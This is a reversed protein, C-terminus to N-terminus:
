ESKQLHNSLRLFGWEVSTSFMVLFSQDKSVSKMKASNTSDAHLEAAGSVSAGVSTISAVSAM